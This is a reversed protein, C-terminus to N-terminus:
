PMGGDGARRKGQLGRAGARRLRELLGRWGLKRYTRGLRRARRRRHLTRPRARWGAWERRKLEGRKIKGSVTKPQEKVYEIVRPYKYPATVTRVHQQLELTLASSGAFGERLVVFAKVVEGRLEDPSAVVASERVAPHELLA